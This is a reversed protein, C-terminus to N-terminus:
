AMGGLATKYYDEAVQQAQQVASETMPRSGFEGPTHGPIRQRIWEDFPILTRVADYTLLIAAAIGVDKGIWRSLPGVALWAAVGKTLASAMTGGAPMVKAMVMDVIEGVIVAIGGGIAAQGLPLGFVEARAIGGLQHMEASPTDAPPTVDEPKVEIRKVADALQTELKSGIEDVKENVAELIKTEEM